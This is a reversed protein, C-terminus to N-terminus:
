LGLEAKEKRTMKAIILKYSKLIWVKLMSDSITGDLIVTNWHRKNMHVGPLVAPFSERIEFVEEPDCKVNISLTETLSVLCFMKGGIKFVLTKDDFPMCETAHPLSLCYERLDEVNMAAFNFM